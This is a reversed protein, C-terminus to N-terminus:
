HHFDRALRVDQIGGRVGVDVILRYERPNVHHFGTYEQGDKETISLKDWIKDPVPNPRKRGLSDRGGTDLVFEMEVTVNDADWEDRRARAKEAAIDIAEEVSIGTQKSQVHIVDTKIWSPANGNTFQEKVEGKFGYLANNQDPVRSHGM